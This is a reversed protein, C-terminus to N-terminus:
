LTIYYRLSPPCVLTMLVVHCSGKNCTSARGGGVHLIQHFCTNFKQSQAFDKSEGDARITYSQCCAGFTHTCTVCSPHQIREVHGENKNQVCQKRLM